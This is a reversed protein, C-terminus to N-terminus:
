QIYFNSYPLSIYYLPAVPLLQFVYYNSLTFIKLQDVCFRISRNSQSSSTSSGPFYCDFQFLNICSSTLRKANTFWFLCEFFWKFIIFGAIYNSTLLLLHPNSYILTFFQNSNNLTKSKSIIFSGCLNFPM